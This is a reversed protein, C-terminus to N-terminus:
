FSFSKLIIRKLMAYDKANVARDGTVDMRDWEAESVTVTGLVARKLLMYDKANLEGDGNVDGRPFVDDFTDMPGTNEASVSFVCLSLLVCVTLILCISRM